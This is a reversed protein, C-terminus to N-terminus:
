LCWNGPFCNKVFSKLFNCKLYVDMDRQMNGLEV